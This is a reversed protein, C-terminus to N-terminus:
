EKNTQSLLYAMDLCAEYIARQHENLTKPLIDNAEALSKAHKEIQAKYEEKKQVEIEEWVTPRNEVQWDAFVITEQFANAKKLHYMGTSQEEAITGLPIDPSDIILRYKKM